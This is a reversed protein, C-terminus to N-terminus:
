ETQFDAQEFEDIAKKWSADAKDGGGDARKIADQIINMIQFYNPGKHPQVTVAKAREAFIKGTPAGSFFDDNISLLEESDLAELQSPFTGKAKFAKIQQEPATLWKALAKAEEPHKTQTPVTLYSGGWNGGGGPYVNAIDWGEVGKANGEIVGLMWSPCIMTGFAEKQFSNQWDESWQELHASLGDDISAKLVKDYVDKIDKNKDLPIVSNDDKEFPNELLNVMGQFVSMGSDYWPVGTAEKFKRGIEFYHDWDGELLKAVEERDTPLGAKEFLDARYCLAEPGIDAGYAILKGDETTVAQEKWDIWRGKVEDDTLDTFNNSYQMLSPVWDVEIGEIDSLGSGAALRTNLNDRAEGSSAAKKHEIVINPNEKEYEKFLDEYGWENFTAVTLKIKGDATMGDDGGSCGALALSAAVLISAGITSIRRTM